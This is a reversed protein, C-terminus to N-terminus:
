REVGSVGSAAYFLHSVGLIDQKETDSLTTYGMLDVMHRVYRNNIIGNPTPDDFIKAVIFHFPQDSM